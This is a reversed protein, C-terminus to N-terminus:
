DCAERVSEGECRGRIRGMEEGRGDNRARRHGQHGQHGQHGEGALNFWWVIRVPGDLSVV